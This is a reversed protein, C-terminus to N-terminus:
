RGAATGAYTWWSEAGAMILLAGHAGLGTRELSEADGDLDRNSQAAALIEGGQFPEPEKCGM